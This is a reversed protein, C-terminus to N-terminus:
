VGPLGLHRCGAFRPTMTETGKDREPVEFPLPEGQVGVKGCM